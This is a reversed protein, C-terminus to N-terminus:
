RPPQRNATPGPPPDSPRSSLTGGPPVGPARRGAGSLLAGIFLCLAVFLVFGGVIILSM